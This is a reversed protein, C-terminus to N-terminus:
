FWWRGEGFFFAMGHLGESGWDGTGKTAQHRPAWDISGELLTDFVRGGMIMKQLVLGGLVGGM